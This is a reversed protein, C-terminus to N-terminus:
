APAGPNGDGSSGSGNPSPHIGSIVNLLTTKGGTPAVLSVMEGAEIHFPSTGCFRSRGSFRTLTKIKLM